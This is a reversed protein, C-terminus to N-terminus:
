HSAANQSRTEHSISFKEEVSLRVATGMKPDQFVRSIKKKLSTHCFTKTIDEENLFMQGEEIPLTGAVSNLLTSKGRVTKWRYDHCIRWPSSEFQNWAACPNENVTGM